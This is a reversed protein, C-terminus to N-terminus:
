AWNSLYTPTLTTLAIFPLAAAYTLASAAPCVKILAAAAGAWASKPPPATMTVPCAAGVTAWLM